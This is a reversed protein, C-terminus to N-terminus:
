CTKRMLKEPREAKRGRRNLRKLNKLDISAMRAADRMRACYKRFEGRVDQGAARLKASGERLAKLVGEIDAGGNGDRILREATRAIERREFEGFEPMMACIKAAYGADWTKALAEAAAMKEKKNGNALVDLLVAKAEEPQKRYAAALLDKACGSATVSGSDLMAAANELEESDLLGGGKVEIIKKALWNIMKIKMDNLGLVAKGLYRMVEWVTNDTRKVNMSWESFKSENDVSM